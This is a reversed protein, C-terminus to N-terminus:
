EEFGECYVSDKNQKCFDVWADYGLPCPTWTNDHPNMKDFYEWENYTESGVTCLGRQGNIEEMGLEGGMCECFLASPNPMRDIGPSGLGSLEKYCKEAETLKVAPPNVEESPLWWFQYALIGVTVLIILVLGVLLIATTVKRM